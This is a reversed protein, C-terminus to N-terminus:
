VLKRVADEIAALLEKPNRHGPKIKLKDALYSLREVYMNALAQNETDKTQQGRLVGLEALQSSCVTSMSVVTSELEEIKQLTKKSKRADELREALEVNQAELEKMKTLELKLADNEEKLLENQKILIRQQGVIERIQFLHSDLKEISM